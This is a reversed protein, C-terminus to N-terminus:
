LAELYKSSRSVLPIAEVEDQFLLRALHDRLITVYMSIGKFLETLCASDNDTDECLSLSNKCIDSFGNCFLLVESSDVKLM